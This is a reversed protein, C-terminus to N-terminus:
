SNILNLLVKASKEWSYKSMDFKPVHPASIATKLGSAIAEPRAADVYILSNGFVDRFCPIDNAVVPLNYALAELIPMGFGEYKSLYAFAQARKLIGATKYDDVYGLVKIRDKLDNENIKKLVSKYKWGLRGIIILNLDHDQNHKVYYTFGDVLAIINKRPQITSITLIYEKPLNVNISNGTNAQIANNLSPSVIFIKDTHVGCYNIIDKKVTETTAIIKYSHPVFLRLGIKYSLVGKLSFYQPFYVPALDHIITITRPFLIAFLHNSPSVLLDLNKKKAIRAVKIMWRTGKFPLSNSVKVVENHVNKQNSDYKSKSFLYYENDHDIKFVAGILNKTYQGIGAPSSEISTIDIGIRM